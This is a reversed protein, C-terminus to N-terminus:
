GAACYLLSPIQFSQGDADADNTLDGAPAANEENTGDGALIRRKKEDEEKELKMKQKKGPADSVRLNTSHLVLGLFQSDGV